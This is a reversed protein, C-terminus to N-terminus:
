LQTHINTCHIAALLVNIVRTPCALGISNYIYLFPLGLSGTWELKSLLKAASGITPRREIM